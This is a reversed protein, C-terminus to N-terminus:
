LSLQFTDENNKDPNVITFQRHYHYFMYIGIITIILIFIVVSVTILM